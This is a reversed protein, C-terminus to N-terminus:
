QPARAHVLYNVGMRGGLRATRTAPNYHIGSMDVLSLGAARLSTALESPRIFRDYRHTGRPLLRLVYEAGLIALVYAEPTRNLTSLFLQGGPRLLRACAEIISSPEPVHELMELCTIVDFSRPAEEALSEATQELYTVQLDSEHLHLRAVDLARRSIDIGTVRAGAEALAESLIGGGCGVDLVDAGDVSARDLIWSMRAPNLDHLARADGDRDWWGAAQADFRQREEHDVNKTIM